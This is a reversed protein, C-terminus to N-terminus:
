AISNWNVTINFQTWFVDVSTAASASRQAVAAMENANSALLEIIASTAAAPAARAANCNCRDGHACSLPLIGACEGLLLPLPQAMPLLVQVM